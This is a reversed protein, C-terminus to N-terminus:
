HFQQLNNEAGAFALSFSFFLSLSLACSIVQKKWSFKKWNQNYTDDELEEFKQADKEVGFPVGELVVGHKKVLVIAPKMWSLEPEEYKGPYNKIADMLLGLVLSIDKIPSDPKLLDQSELVKLTAIVAYGILQITQSLGQGDDIM